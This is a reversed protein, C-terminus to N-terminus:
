LTTNLVPRSALLTDTNISIIPQISMALPLLLLCLAGFPMRTMYNRSCKNKPTVKQSALNTKESINVPKTAFLTSSPAISCSKPKPNNDVIFMLMAQLNTSKQMSPTETGGNGCSALMSAFMVGNMILLSLKKKMLKKREPRQGNDSAVCYTQNFSLNEM